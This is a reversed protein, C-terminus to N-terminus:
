RGVEQLRKAAQKRRMWAYKADGAGSGPFPDRARIKRAKAKKPKEAGTYMAHNPDARPASVTAFSM